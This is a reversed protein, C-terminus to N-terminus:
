FSKKGSSVLCRCINIMMSCASSGESFFIYWYWKPQQHNELPECITFSFKIFLCLCVPVQFFFSMCNMLPFAEMKTDSWGNLQCLSKSFNIASFLFSYFLIEWYLAYDILWRPERQRIREIWEPLPSKLYISIKEYNCLGNSFMEWSIASFSLIRCFRKLM